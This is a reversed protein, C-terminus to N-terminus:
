HVVDDEPEVNTCEFEQPSELLSALSQLSAIRDQLRLRLEAASLNDLANEQTGTFRVKEVTKGHARDWIMCELAPPLDGL